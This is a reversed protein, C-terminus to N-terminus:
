NGLKQNKLFNGIKWWFLKQQGKLPKRSQKAEAWFQYIQKEPIKKFFGLYFSFSGVGKKASEGFYKRIEDVLYHKESHLTKKEAINKRSIIAGINEMQRPLVKAVIQRSPPQAGLNQIKEITIKRSIKELIKENPRKVIEKIEKKSFIKNLIKELPYNTKQSVFILFDIIEKKLFIIQNENKIKEIKIKNKRIFTKKNKLDDIEFVIASCEKKKFFVFVVSGVFFKKESFCFIKENFKNRYIPVATIIKM